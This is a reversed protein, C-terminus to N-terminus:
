DPPVPVRHLQSEDRLDRGLNTNGAGQHDRGAPRGWQGWPLHALRPPAWTTPLWSVVCVNIFSSGKHSMQYLFRRCHPLGPNSGQTPFLGQLLSLSGVGTNQGPSYWPSYLGHPRLSKSMVSRSESETARFILEPARYYQSCFWLAPPCPHCPGGAHEPAQHIPSVCGSCPPLGLEPLAPVHIGQCLHYCHDVQGQYLPLGGPVSDLACIGAGSKPLAWREEHSVHPFLSTSWDHRVRQSGMSQLGGPEETWPIKWALTRSHTAMDKELLDEWGLSQVRTDWMAPLHKVMQAVLSATVSKIKKPELIVSSPSQLWSILLHKSRPLFAIVFSSLM